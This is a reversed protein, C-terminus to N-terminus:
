TSCHNLIAKQLPLNQTWKNKWCGNEEEYSKKPHLRQIDMCPFWGLFFTIRLIRGIHLKAWKGLWTALPLPFFFPTL